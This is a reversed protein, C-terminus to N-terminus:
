KKPIKYSAALAAADIITNNLSREAVHSVWCVTC